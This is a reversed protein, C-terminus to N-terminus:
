IENIFYHYGFVHAMVGCVNILSIGQGARAILLSLKERLHIVLQNLEPDNPGSRNKVTIEDIENQQQQLNAM